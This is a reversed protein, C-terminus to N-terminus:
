NVNLEYPVQKPGSRQVVAKANMDYGNQLVRGKRMRSETEPNSAWIARMDNIFREFVPLRQTTM